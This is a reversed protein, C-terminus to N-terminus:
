VRAILLVAALHSSKERDKRILNLTLSRTLCIKERRQCNWEVPTYQMWIWNLKFWLLDIQCFWYFFSNNNNNNYVVFPIGSIDKLFLSKLSLLLISCTYTPIIINSKTMKSHSMRLKENIVNQLKTYFRKLKKQVVM